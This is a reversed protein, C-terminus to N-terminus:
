RAASATLKVSLKVAKVSSMAAAYLGTGVTLAVIGLLHLHDLGLFVLGIRSLLVGPTMALASLAGQAALQGVRETLPLRQRQLGILRAPVLVFAVLMVAVVSGLVAGFLWLSGVRPVVVVAVALGIGVVAGAALITRRCQNAERLAPGILPPGPADIAFAFVTNCWIAATTLLVVGVACGVLLLPSVDRFETHHLFHQKLDWMALWVVVAPVLQILLLRWNLVLLKVGALMLVLTGAAWALPALTRRSEGLRRLGAEIAIPDAAVIAHVLLGLHAWRARM